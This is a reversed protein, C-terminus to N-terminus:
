SQGLSVQQIAVMHGPCCINDGVAQKPKQKRPM